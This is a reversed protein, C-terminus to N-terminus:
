ASYFTIDTILFDELICFAYMKAVIGARIDSRINAHITAKYNIVMSVTNFFYSIEVM